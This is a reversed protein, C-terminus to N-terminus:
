NYPPSWESKPSLLDIQNVVVVVPPLKLHQREAFYFKLGDLLDIDPKRGPNNAQTVLLILAAEQAAQAAAALEAENPGDRGYGATDLMSVPQGGPLTVNYRMGIHQVPLADVTAQQRGLLANVLSSKGAKVAGLVAIGIPKPGSAPIAPAPPAKEDSPAPTPEAPPEKSAALLERYRKVGVKLRGSNLEVLYHGLLHIFATHFWLIVNNQLRDFLNGLIGRSAFFRLATDVPNLIASGAWYINQGTKYWETAKRARKMDKIRLMHSGPVYKQVLENLDAAALEVCTLVEPLTLLDFAQAPADVGGPNDVQAVQTALDLAADAYHKPDALQGTTVKEYSAAKALVKEWAAKDRDTWYNPPETATDPLLGPRRTWWYALLYSLGM